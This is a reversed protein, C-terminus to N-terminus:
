GWKDEALLQFPSGREPSLDAGNTRYALLDRLSCARGCSTWVGAKVCDLAVVKKYARDGDLTRDYPLKLPRDVLGVVELRYAELDVRQPGAIPSERFDDISSLGLGEYERVEARPLSRPATAEPSAPGGPQPAALCGSLSFVLVASAMIASLPCLRRSVSKEEALAM